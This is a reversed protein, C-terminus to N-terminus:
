AWRQRTNWTNKKSSTISSRPKERPMSGSCSFPFPRSSRQRPQPKLVRQDCSPLSRLRENRKKTNRAKRRKQFYPNWPRSMTRPSTPVMQESISCSREQLISIPFHKKIVRPKKQLKEEKWSNRSLNSPIPNDNWSVGVEHDNDSYCFDM